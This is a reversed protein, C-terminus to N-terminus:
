FYYGIKLAAWVPIEIVDKNIYAFEISTSFGFDTMYQIGIPLYLSVSGEGIGHGISIPIITYSVNFGLYPSWNDDIFYYETGLYYGVLGFGGQFNINKNIFYDLQLTLLFAPGGAVATIGFNNEILPNQYNSDPQKNTKAELTSLSFILFAITIVKKM